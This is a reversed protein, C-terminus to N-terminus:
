CSIRVLSAVGGCVGETWRDMWRDMTKAARDAMFRVCVKGGDARLVSSISAWPTQRRLWWGLGVAVKRRSVGEALSSCDM